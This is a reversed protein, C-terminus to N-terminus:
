CAEEPQSNEVHYGALFRRVLTEPFPQRGPVMELVHHSDGVTMPVRMTAVVSQIVTSPQHPFAQIVRQLLTLGDPLDFAPQGTADPMSWLLAIQEDALRVFQACAQIFSAWTSCIMEAAEAVPQCHVDFHATGVALAAEAEASLLQPKLQEMEQLLLGMRDEAMLYDIYGNRDLTAAKRRQWFEAHTERLQDYEKQKVQMLARLVKLPPCSPAEVVARQEDMREEQLGLSRSSMNGTGRLEVHRLVLEQFQHGDRLLRRKEEMLKELVEILQTPTAVDGLFAEVMDSSLVRDERDFSLLEERWEAAASWRAKSFARWWVGSLPTPLPCWRTTLWTWVTPAGLM